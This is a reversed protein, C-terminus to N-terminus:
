DHGPVRRSVSQQVTARAAEIGVRIDSVKQIGEDIWTVLEDKQGQLEQGSHRWLRLALKRKEYRFRIRSHKNTLMIMM